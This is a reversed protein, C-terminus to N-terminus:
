IPRSTSFDYGYPVKEFSKPHVIRKNYVSDWLNKLKGLQLQIRRNYINIPDKDKYYQKYWYMLDTHLNVNSVAPNQIFDIQKNPYSIDAINRPYM